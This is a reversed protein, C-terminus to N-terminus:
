HLIKTVAARRSWSVDGWNVLEGDKWARDFEETVVEDEGEREGMYEM